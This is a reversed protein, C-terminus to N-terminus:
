RGQPHYARDFEERSIVEVFPIARGPGDAKVVQSLLLQLQRGVPVGRSWREIECTVAAITDASCKPASWARLAMACDAFDLMERRTILGKKIWEAM